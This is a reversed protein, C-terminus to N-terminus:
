TPPLRKQRRVLYIGLLIVAAGLLKRRGLPEDLALYAVITAAVPTLNSYIATQTPGIRGVAFFWLCYA